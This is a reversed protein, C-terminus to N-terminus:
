VRLEYLRNFLGLKDGVACMVRAMTGAVGGFARGAFAEVAAGDPEQLERPELVTGM